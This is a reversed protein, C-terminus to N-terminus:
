QSYWHDVSYDQKYPISALAEPFNKCVGKHCFFVFNSTIEYKVKIHSM